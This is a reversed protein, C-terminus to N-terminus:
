LDDIHPDQSSLPDERWAKRLLGPFVQAYLDGRRTETTVKKEENTLCTLTALCTAAFLAAGGGREDESGARGGGGALACIFDGVEALDVLRALISDVRGMPEPQDLPRIVDISSVPQVAAPPERFPSPGVSRRELLGYEASVVSHFTWFEGLAPVYELHCHRSAFEQRSRGASITLM